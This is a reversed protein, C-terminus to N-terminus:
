LVNAKEKAVRKKETIYETKKVIQKEKKEVNDHKQKLQTLEIENGICLIHPIKNVCLQKRQHPTSKYKHHQVSRNFYIPYHTSFARSHSYSTTYSHRLM